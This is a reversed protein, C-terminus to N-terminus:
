QHIVRTSPHIPREFSSEGEIFDGSRKTSDSVDKQSEVTEKESYNM